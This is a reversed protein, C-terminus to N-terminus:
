LQQCCFGLLLQRTQKVAKSPLPNLVKSLMRTKNFLFNLVISLNHVRCHSIPKRYM